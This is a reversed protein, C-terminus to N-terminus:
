DVNDVFTNIFNIRQSLYTTGAGFDPPFRWKEFEEVSTQILAMSCEHNITCIAHEVSGDPNIWFGFEAWSQRGPEWLQTYERSIRKWFATLSESVSLLSRMRDSRGAYNMASPFDGPKFEYALRLMGKESRLVVSDALAYDRHTFRTRPSGDAYRTEYVMASHDPIRGACGWVMM